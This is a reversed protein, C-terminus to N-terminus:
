EEWMRRVVRTFDRLPIPRNVDLHVPKPSVRIAQQQAPSLVIRGDRDVAFEGARDGVPSTLGLASPAYLFLMLRQGIRYRPGATWLGAWERFSLTEGTRAGRVGQEVRCTVQVSAVEDSASGRVPEIKLVQGVFILSARQTIQSLDPPLERVPLATRMQAGVTLGSALLFLVLLCRLLSWHM